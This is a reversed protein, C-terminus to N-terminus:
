LPSWSTGGDRSVLLAQEHGQASVGAAYLREGGPAVALHLLYREGFDNGLTQWSLRPESTHILGTGVLFAYVEGEPTVQVMTAPQRVLYAERWTRGGDGSKLLGGQTAAYLTNADKAWAALGILGEPAPGVVDWTTGGDRSTQLSGAYAGYLVQPDAPSVDMQHFDVPGNVGTAIQQWTTGGDKSVLVGMNGGGAPHGSAYLTGVDSPHPMFGMYDNQNDSILTATGDQGVAYLGHHTALYLRSPDSRDVALGHFHTQQTLDAVSLPQAADLPLTLVTVIALVLAAGGFLAGLKLPLNTM